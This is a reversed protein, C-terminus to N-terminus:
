VKIKRNIQGLGAFTDRFPYVVTYGCKQLRPVLEVMIFGPLDVSLTSNEDITKRIVELLNSGLTVIYGTSPHWSSLNDYTFLEKLYGYPFNEARGV